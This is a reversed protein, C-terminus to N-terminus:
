ARHLIAIPEDHYLTESRHTFGLRAALKLSAKNDPSIIAWTPGAGRTATLWAMAAQGAELAIGQGHVDPSFIWGMEPVEALEEDLAREFIGFGLQGVFQGDARTEVAWYGLGLLAWQGACMLLKRWSQERTEPVGGLYKTVVPNGLMRALADLDDRRFARM